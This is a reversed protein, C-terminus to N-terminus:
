CHQAGKVIFNPWCWWKGWWFRQYVLPMWLVSLGALSPHPCWWSPILLIAYQAHTTFWLSRESQMRQGGRHVSWKNRHLSFMAFCPQNIAECRCLNAGINFRYILPIYLLEPVVLNGNALFYWTTLLEVINRSKVFYLNYQKAQWQMVIFVSIRLM